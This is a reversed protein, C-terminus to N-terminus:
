SQPKASFSIHHDWGTNMTMKGSTELPDCHLFKIEYEIIKISFNLKQIVNASNLSTGLLEEIMNLRSNVTNRYFFLKQACLSANCNCDIYVKLTEYLRTQNNADYRMLNILGPECLYSINQISRHLGSIQM